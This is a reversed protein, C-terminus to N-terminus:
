VDLDFPIMAAVDILQAVSGIQMPLNLDLARAGCQKCAGVELWQLREFRRLGFRLAVEAARGCFACVVYFGGDPSWALVRNGELVPTSASGSAAAGPRM